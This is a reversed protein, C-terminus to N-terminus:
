KNYKRMKQGSGKEGGTIRRLMDTAFEAAAADPTMTCGTNYAELASHILPAYPSDPMQALAWQGGERKSLILGERRFALVRCLNLTIYVPNEWIEERAERVDEWISDLFFCSDVPAFLTNIPEGWLVKGRHSIVTFHAALDKDTGNMREVYGDPDSLYWDAHRQSFHLLFPTPYVFSRCTQALVMSMEIGKGPMLRHLAMVMDMYERKVARSPNEEVVTLLDIDNKGYLFCGMAMSGHLYVGTLNDGLIERSCHAFREALAQASPATVNCAGKTGSSLEM